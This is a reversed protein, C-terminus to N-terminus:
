FIYQVMATLRNNDVKAQEQALTGNLMLRVPLSETQYGLGITHEIIQDNDQDDRTNPDLFAFRYGFWAGWLTYSWQVHAGLSNQDPAGTTSYLKNQFLLQGQISMGFFSALLSIESGKVEEDTLNPIEGRTRSDTFGAVNLQVWQGYYASVRAFAAPRDNDNFALDVTRGNTLALAYGLDFGDETLGLHDQHVMVGLQRDQSLGETENGQTALVGRSEVPQDIFTRLATVELEGLDYPAKFRGATILAFRSLDYRLFTDRPRITFTGNPANIDEREGFAAEMAVFAMLPGRRASMGIRANGLKFGDNRGIYENDNETIEGLVRFYGNWIFEVGGAEASLGGSGLQSEDVRFQGSNKLGQEKKVPAPETPPTKNPDKPQPDVKPEDVGGEPTNRKMGDDVGGTPPKARPMGDDVGGEPMPARRLPGGDEPMLVATSTDTQAVAAIPWLGFTIPTLLAVLKSSRM